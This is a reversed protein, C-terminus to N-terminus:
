ANRKLNESLVTIKERARVFYLFTTRHRQGHGSELPLTKM